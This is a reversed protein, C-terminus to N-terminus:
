DEGKEGSSVPAPGDKGGRPTTNGGKGRKKKRRMKKQQGGGGGGNGGVNDADGEQKANPPGGGGGGSSDGAGGSDNAPNNSNNTKHTTDTITSSGPELGLIKEFQATASKVAETKGTIIYKTATKPGKDSGEKAPGEDEENDGEKVLESEGKDDDEVDEEKANSLANAGVSGDAATGTLRLKKRRIVTNTKRQVKRIKGLNLLKSSPTWIKIIVAEATTATTTTTGKDGAGGEQPQKTNGKSTSATKANQPSAADSTGGATNASGGGGKSANGGSKSNANTNKEEPKEVIVGTPVWREGAVISLMKVLCLEVKDIEGELQIVNPPLTAGSAGPVGPQAGAGMTTSPNMRGGGSNDGFLMVSGADVQAAAQQQKERQKWFNEGGGVNSMFENPPIMIRTEYTASLAAIVIGGKGVLLNHKARHIPVELIIDPDHSRDVLPLIQRVASFCGLPDGRIIVPTWENDSNTSDEATTDDGSPHQPHQHSHPTQSKQYQNGYYDQYNWSHSGSQQSTGGYADVHSNDHLGEHGNAHGHGGQQRGGGGGSDSGLVSIRVPGAHGGSRRMAERQVNLITRGGRGIVAGVTHPPVYITLQCQQLPHSISKQRLHALSLSEPTLTSSATHSSSSSSNNPNPNNMNSSAPSHGGGPHSHSHSADGVNVNTPANGGPRPNNRDNHRENRPYYRGM